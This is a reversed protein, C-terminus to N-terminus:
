EIQMAALIASREFAFGLFPHAPTEPEQQLAQQKGAAKDQKAGSRATPQAPAKDKGGKLGLPVQQAQAKTKSSAEAGKPPAASAARGAKM